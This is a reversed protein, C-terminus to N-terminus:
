CGGELARREGVDGVEWVRMRVWIRVEVWGEGRVM